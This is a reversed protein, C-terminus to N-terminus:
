LSLSWRSSTLIINCKIKLLPNSPRQSATLPGLRPDTRVRTFVLILMRNGYFLRFKKVLRIALLLILTREKLENHSLEQM